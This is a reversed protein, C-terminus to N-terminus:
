FIITMQLTGATGTKCQVVLTSNCPIDMKTFKLNCFKYLVYNVIDFLGVMM